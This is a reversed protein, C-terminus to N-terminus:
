SYSLKSFFNLDFPFSAFNVSISVNSTAGQLMTDPSASRKYTSISSKTLVSNSADGATVVKEDINSKDM